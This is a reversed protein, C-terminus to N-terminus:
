PADAYRICRASARVQKGAAARVRLEWVNYSPSLEILETRGDFRGSIETLYCYAEDIPALARRAESSPAEPSAPPTQLSYEGAPWIHRQVGGEGPESLTGFSLVRAQLEDVDSVLTSLAMVSSPELTTEVYTQLGNLRGGVGILAHAQDRFGIGLTQSRSPTFLDLLDDREPAMSTAGFLARPICSAGARLLQGPTQPLRKSKLDVRWIGMGSSADTEKKLMVSEGGGAFHGSIHNLTCIWDDANAFRGGNSVRGQEFVFLSPEFRGTPLFEKFHEPLRLEDLHALLTDPDCDPPPTCATCLTPADPQHAVQNEVAAACTDTVRTYADICRDVEDVWERVQTQRTTSLSGWSMRWPNEIAWRMLQWRANLESGSSMLAARQADFHHLCDLEDAFADAHCYVLEVSDYPRTAYQYTVGFWPHEYVQNQRLESLSQSIQQHIQPTRAFDYPQWAEPTLIDSISKIGMPYLHWGMRAFPSEVLSSYWSIAPDDGWGTLRNFPLVNRLDGREERSLDTVDALLLFIRGLVEINVYASGCRRAFEGPTAPREEPSLGCTSEPAYTSVGNDYIPGYPHLSRVLHPTTLVLWVVERAGQDALETHRAELRTALSDAGPLEPALLQRVERSTQAPTQSFGALSIAGASVNQVRYTYNALCLEEGPAAEGSLTGGPLVGAGPSQYPVLAHKASHSAQLSPDECGAVVLSALALAQLMGPLFLRM